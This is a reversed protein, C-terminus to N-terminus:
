RNKAQRLKNELFKTAWEQEADNAGEFFYQTGSGAIIAPMTLGAEFSRQLRWMLKPNSFVSFPSAKMHTMKISQIDKFNYEYKKSNFLRSKSLTLSSKGVKITQTENIGNIIGTLMFLGVLWFPISFMAFFISGQSAGWTWFSIFGFWFICFFFVPIDSFSVGKKPVFIQFNDGYEKTLEIKSGKPPESLTKDEVTSVLLSAKHIAGCHGCKALDTVVNINTSDITRKCTTCILEM